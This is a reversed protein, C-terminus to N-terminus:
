GALLWGPTPVKEAVLLRTWAGQSLCRVNASFWTVQM